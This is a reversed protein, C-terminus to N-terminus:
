KIIPSSGTVIPIFNLLQVFNEISCEKKIFVFKYNDVIVTNFSKFRYLTISTSFRGNVRITLNLEQTDSFYPTIDFRKVIYYNGGSNHAFSKLFVPENENLLALNVASPAEFIKKALNLAREVKWSNWMIFKFMFLTVIGLLLPIGIKKMM